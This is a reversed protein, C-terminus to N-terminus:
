EFCMERRDKYVKVTIKEENGIFFPTAIEPWEIFVYAGQDLYEEFGIGYLEDESKVRYLDFHFITVGSATDYENVLSYTPSSGHDISGLQKCLEKVLTTKGAGMEGNLLCVCPEPHLEVWKKAVLKVDELAKAELIM